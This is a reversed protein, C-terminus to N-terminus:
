RVLGVAKGRRGDRGGDARQFMEAFGDSAIEGLAARLAAARDTGFTAEFRRQAQRWLVRAEALTARGAPTLRVLRSRGDDVNAVLEVLGDRELPKLNHGLASRDLVLAAALEGMAPTGARDIHTLIAMQTSRLGSPALVADYLQSVRRTAKRLASNNCLAANSMSQKTM